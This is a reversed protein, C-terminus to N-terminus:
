RHYWFVLRLASISLFVPIEFTIDARGSSVFSVTNPITLIVEAWFTILWMQVQCSSAAHDLAGPGTILGSSATALHSLAIEWHLSHTQLKSSSTWMLKAPATGLSFLHCLLHICMQPGLHPGKWRSTLYHGFSYGNTYCTKSDVYSNLQFIQTASTSLFSPLTRHICERGHPLLQIIPLSVFPLRLLFM